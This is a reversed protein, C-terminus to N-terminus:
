GNEAVPRAVKQVVKSKFAEVVEPHPKKLDAMDFIGLMSWNEKRMRILPVSTPKIYCWSQFSLDDHSAASVTGLFHRVGGSVAQVCLLRPYGTMVTHGVLYLGGHFKYYFGKHQVGGRSEPRWAGFEPLATGEPKRYLSMLTVGVRNRPAKSLLTFTLYRGALEIADKALAEDGIDMESPFGRTVGVKMAIEIPVRNEKAYGHVLERLVKTGRSRGNSVAWLLEARIGLKKAIAKFQHRMEYRLYVLLDRLAEGEDQSLRESQEAESSRDGVAM